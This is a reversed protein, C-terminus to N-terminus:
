LQVGMVSSNCFHRLLSWRFLLESEGDNYIKFFLHCDKSSSILTDVMTEYCTELIGGETLSTENVLVSEGTAFMTLNTPAEAITFYLDSEGKNLFYAVLTTPEFEWLLQSEGSIFKKATLISDEVEFVLQEELFNFCTELIGGETISIQWDLTSEGAMFMTLYAFITEVSFVLESSGEGRVQYFLDFPPSQLELVSEGVNFCTELPAPNSQKFYLTSNGVNFCTELPTVPEDDLELISLEGWM